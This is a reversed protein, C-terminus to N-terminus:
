KINCQLMIYILIPDIHKCIVIGSNPIHANQDTQFSVKQFFGGVTSYYFFIIKIFPPPSAETGVAFSLRVPVAFLGFRVPM